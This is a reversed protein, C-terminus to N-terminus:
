ALLPFDFNDGGGGGGWGVLRHTSTNPICMTYLRHCFCGLLWVIVSMFSKNIKRLPFHFYPYVYRLTDRKEKGREREREERGKKRKKRERGREGGEGEKEEEKRERERGAERGGQKGAESNLGDCLCM